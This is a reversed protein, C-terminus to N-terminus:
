GAEDIPASLDTDVFLVYTGSAARLGERVSYGKGRNGDNRILRLHPTRCQSVVEVTKDTSGDDVVIVEVFLPHQRIYADIRQLSKGIRGAENFAPIVISITPTEQQVMMM